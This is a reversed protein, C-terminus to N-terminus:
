RADEDQETGDQAWAPAPAAPELFTLLASSAALVEAAPVHEDARHAFLPNGPGFNLAPVGLASFRAVDTWGLKPAVPAGVADAFAQATPKDLGPRAGESLDVVTVDFGAFLERLHAEAEAGSTSPAFRHNVLVTCADPVVNGAVGGSIGVASMSERYDLGDVTVTREEYDALTALIPAAAHIANEGMFARASHARVGTTRVEVRITGNCGGEIGANSPEGLIALDAALLDPHDAALRGLGNLSADVEEHDYFVWTVDRAPARLARAVALQMAVGAKMDCAGRGWVVDQGDLVRRDTPLNDEIPVTDLHGAVLVREDLGLTTRAILADGNRVIELSTRDGASIERLVAEVADAIRAEDGSVSPIDCLRATLEVPDDLAACLAASDRAASPAPPTM